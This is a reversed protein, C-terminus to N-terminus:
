RCVGARKCVKVQSIAVGSGASSTGGLYLNAGPNWTSAPSGSATHTGDTARYVGGPSTWADLTQTSGAAWGLTGTAVDNGGVLWDLTGSVTSLVLENATTSSLLTADVTSAWEPTTVLHVSAAGSGLVSTSVSLSDAARTTATTTTPIYSTAFGLSEFQGGWAYTTVASTSAMGANGVVNGICVNYSHASTAAFTLAYRIWTTTMSALSASVYSGATTDYVYLYIGGTGSSTRMWVSWTESATAPAAFGTQCIATGQASGVAPYAIQDASLDGGPSAAQDATVTPNGVGGASALTWAANDFQESRVIRNTSSPEQLCGQYGCRLEGSLANVIHGAASEYTGTSARSTALTPGVTPTPPSSWRGSLRYDALVEAASLPRSIIRLEDLSGNHSNVLNDGIGVFVKQTGGGPGPLALGTSHAVSVGDVYADLTCTGSTPTLTIAYHHWGGLPLTYGTNTNVSGSGGSTHWFINWQYSTTSWYSAFLYHNGSGDGIEVHAGFTEVGNTDRQAWYEMTVSGAQIASIVSADANGSLYNGSASTRRSGSFVGVTPTVTGSVTLATGGSVSNAADINTAEDMRWLAVTDSTVSPAAPASPTWSLSPPSDAPGLQYVAGPAALDAGLPYVLGGPAAQGPLALQALLLALLATHMLADGDGLVRLRDM